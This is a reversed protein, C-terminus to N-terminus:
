SFDSPAAGSGLFRYEGRGHLFEPGEKFKRKPSRLIRVVSSNGGRGRSSSNECTLGWEKLPPWDTMSLRGTTIREKIRPKAHSQSAKLIM